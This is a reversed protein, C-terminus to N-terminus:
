AFGFSYSLHYLFFVDSFVIILIQVSIKPWSLKVKFVRARSDLTAVM